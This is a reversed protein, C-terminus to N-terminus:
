RVATARRLLLNRLKGAFVRVAFIPKEIDFYWQVREIQNQHNQSSLQDEAYHSEFFSFIVRIRARSSLLLDKSVM